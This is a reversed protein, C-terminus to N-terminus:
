KTKVHGQADKVVKMDLPSIYGADKLVKGQVRDSLIYDLFEKTLGKAPGNTYMHEYSWIKWANTTVNAARAAVGDIKLAQLDQSIYGFALYSIAGPTNAVIKQVTGNSDQEQANIAKKGQLVAEEFTKRSGSGQARNIVTIALNPGGVEQWNTIKGTYIDQLQQFSLGTVGLDRSVVPALGVVAVQHDVLNKADIGEKNEAFIDANGIEVTKAQVQSLGTGSGGGQVIMEAQPAKKQFDLAVEQALPQLATSGVLTIKQREPELDAQKKLYYLGGCLLILIALLYFKKSKM